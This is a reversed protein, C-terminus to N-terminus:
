CRPRKIVDSDDSKLTDKLRFLFGKFESPFNARDAGNFEVVRVYDKEFHALFSDYDFFWAPYSASYIHPPVKQVTLRDSGERIFATRDVLIYPFRRDLFDAILTFPDEIYALVSSLLLCDVKQNELCEDVSEYFKLEASEFELRGLATFNAQEVISWEVHQLESLFHRCQYFTSGLSGGFDLLRLQGGNTAAVKFLIALLPWNYEPKQFLVSDREFAAGGQQVARMASAVKDLILPNSYGSCDKQAEKWSEYNGFFGHKPSPKLLQWLLPPTCQKLVGKGSLPTFRNIQMHRPLLNKLFSKTRSLRGTPLLKAMYGQFAELVEKDEHLPASGIQIPFKALKVTFDESERCHTGQADHGINQVLSLGPYLTLKDALFASAHWRIAWSDNKGAIQDQLMRSFSFPGRDFLKLMGRVRIAQLLKKGDPEFLEWGRKWTAWGWCDAGRLFYTEPLKQDVPYTYAHISIVKEEQVYYELADNMFKLFHPSTVHDDELVIVRGFREVLETVGAIISGALGLNKKRYVLHLSRFGEASKLYERTAAVGTEALDGKPGDSFVYLDSEDSLFNAKLAEITKKTHIPRNYTFLAIPATNM